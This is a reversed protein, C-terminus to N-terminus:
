YIPKYDKDIEKVLYELFEIKQCLYINKYYDLNRETEERCVIIKKKFYFTEEQLGGSDSIVFKCKKILEIMKTHKLPEITKINKLIEINKLIKPNKNKIFFFKLYKFKLSISELERFWKDIIDINENRHLTIIVIDLYNIDKNFQKLYPNGIIHINNKINEKILNKKHFDYYCLHIDTLKSILQRNMEEPYPTNKYTRLGAELHIIKKKNHFASLAISLASSTDGQIMIYDINKFIYTYKLISTTINNLRNECSNNNINLKYDVIVNNLLDPHQGTFCTKINELNDIFYKLKIYEPRTGFCILINYGSLENLFIM